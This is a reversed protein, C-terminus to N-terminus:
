AFACSSVRLISRNFPKKWSPWIALWLAIVPSQLKALPLADASKSAAAEAGLTIHPSEVRQASTDYLAEFRVPLWASALLWILAPTVLPALLTTVAAIAVALALDGKALWAM